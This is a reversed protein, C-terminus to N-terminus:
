PQQPLGPQPQQPQGLGPEQMPPLSSIPKRRRSYNDLILQKEDIEFRNHGSKNAEVFSLETGPCLLLTPAGPPPQRGNPLLTLPTTVVPDFDLASSTGGLM